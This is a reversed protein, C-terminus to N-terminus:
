IQIIVLASSWLVSTGYQDDFSCIVEVAKMRLHRHEDMVSRFIYIKCIAFCITSFNRHKLNTM